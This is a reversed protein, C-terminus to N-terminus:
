KMELRLIIFKVKDSEAFMNAIVTDINDSGDKSVELYATPTSTDGDIKEVINVKM